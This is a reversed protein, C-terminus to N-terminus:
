KKRIDVQAKSVKNLIATIHMKPTGDAQMKNLKRAFFVMRQDNRLRFLNSYIVKNQPSTVAILISSKEDESTPVWLAQKRPAIIKLQDFTKVALEVSSLNYFHVNSNSIETLSDDIAVVQLPLISGPSSPFFILLVKKMGKPILVEALQQTAPDLLDSKKQPADTTDTTQAQTPSSWEDILSSKGEYFRIRRYGTYTYEKSFQGNHLNIDRNTKSINLYKFLGWGFTRYKIHIIEEEDSQAVAKTALLLPMGLIFAGLIIHRRKCHMLQDQNLAM